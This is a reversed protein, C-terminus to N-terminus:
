SIPVVEAQHGHHVGGQRLTGHPGYPLAHPWYLELVRQALQRTTLTDPPEGSAGTGEICLDLIATFLAFKYTASFSGEELIALVREALALAGADDTM